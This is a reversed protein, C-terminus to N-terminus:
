WNKLIPLKPKIIKGNVGKVIIDQDFVLQKEAEDKIKL